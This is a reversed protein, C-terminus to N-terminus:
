PYLCMGLIKRSVSFLATTCSRHFSRRCILWGKWLALLYQLEACGHSQSLTWSMQRCIWEVRDLLTQWGTCANCSSALLYIYTVCNLKTMWVALTSFAIIEPHISVQIETENNFATNPATGVFDFCFWAGWVYPYLPKLPVFTCTTFAM